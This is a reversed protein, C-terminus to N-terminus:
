GIETSATVSASQSTSVLCMVERGLTVRVTDVFGSRVDISDQLTQAGIRRARFFYRGAPITLTIVTDGFPLDRRIAQNRLSVQASQLGPMSDVQVDIILAGTQSGLTKDPHGFAVRFQSNPWSAPRQSPCTTAVIIPGRGFTVTETSEPPARRACASTTAAVGLCALIARTM